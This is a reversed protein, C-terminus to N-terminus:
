MIQLGKHIAGFVVFEDNNVYVFHHRKLVHYNRCAHIKQFAGLSSMLELFGYLIEQM